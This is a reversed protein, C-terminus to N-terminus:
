MEAPFKCIRIFFKKYKELVTREKNQTSQQDLLQKKRYIFRCM